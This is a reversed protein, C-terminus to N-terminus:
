MEFFALKSKIIALLIKSSIKLFPDNLNDQGLIILQIYIFQQVININININLIPKKSFQNPTFKSNVFKM